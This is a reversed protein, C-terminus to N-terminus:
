EIKGKGAAGYGRRLPAKTPFSGSRTRSESIRLSSKREGKVQLPARHAGLSWWSPWLGRVNCESLISHCTRCGITTRETAAQFDGRPQRRDKEHNTM